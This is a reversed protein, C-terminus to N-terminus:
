KSLGIYHVSTFNSVYLHAHLSDFNDEFFFGGFGPRDMRFQYSIGKQRADEVYRKEEEPTKTALVCGSGITLFKTKTGSLTYAELSHFHGNLYLDVGYKDLLSVLNFNVQDARHHAIMIKWDKAEMQELLKVLAENQCPEAKLNEPFAYHQKNWESGNAPPPHPDWKSKDSSRYDSICPTTDFFVFSVYRAASPALQVRHIFNRAPMNWKGPYTQTANVQAEPNFGYGHNGLVAYWPLAELAAGHAKFVNIWSSQWNSFSRNDTPSVVGYDYFNDGLATILKTMPYAAVFKSMGVANGNLENVMKESHSEAGWDGLAMFAAEETAGLAFGATALLSLALM